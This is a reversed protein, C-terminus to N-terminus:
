LMTEEVFREHESEYSNVGEQSNQSDDASLESQASGEDAIDDPERSNQLNKLKQLIPFKNLIDDVNNTSEQKVFVNLIKQLMMPELIADEILFELMKMIIFGWLLKTMTIVPMKLVYLIMIVALAIRVLIQLIIVVSMQQMIKFGNIVFIGTAELASKFLSKEPHAYCYALVCEDVYDSYRKLMWKTVKGIKTGQLRELTNQSAKGDETESDDNNPSKQFEEVIEKACSRIIKNFLPIALTFKFRITAGVFSEVITFDEKQNATYFIQAAKIFSNVYNRVLDVILYFCALLLLGRIVNIFWMDSALIDYDNKTAHVYWKYFIITLAVDGIVELLPKKGIGKIGLFLIVGIVLFMPLDRILISGESGRLYVYVLGVLFFINLLIRLLIFKIYRM